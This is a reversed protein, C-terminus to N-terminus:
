GASGLHLTHSDDRLNRRPVASGDADFLYLNALDVSFTVDTTPPVIVQKDLRAIIETERGKLTGYWFSSHGMNEILRTTGILTPGPSKSQRRSFVSFANRCISDM